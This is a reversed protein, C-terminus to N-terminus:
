DEIYLSLDTHSHYLGYVIYSFLPRLLLMALEFIVALIILVKGISDSKGLFISVSIFVLSFVYIWLLLINYFKPIALNPYKLTVISNLLPHYIKLAAWLIQLFSAKSKSEIKFKRTDHGYKHCCGLALTAFVVVSTVIVAAIYSAPNDKYYKM